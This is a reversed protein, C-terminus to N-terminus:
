YVVPSQLAQTQTGHNQKATCRAQLNKSYLSLVYRKLSSELNLVRTNGFLLHILGALLVRM